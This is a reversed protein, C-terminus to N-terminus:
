DEREFSFIGIFPQIHSPRGDPCKGRFILSPMSDGAPGASIDESGQALPSIKTFDIRLMGDDEVVLYLKYKQDMLDQSDNYHILGKTSGTILGMTSGVGMINTGKVKIYLGSLGFPSCHIELDCDNAYQFSIQDNDDQIPEM